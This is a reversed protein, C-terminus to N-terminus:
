SACEYGEKENQVKNHCHSLSTIADISQSISANGPVEDGCLSKINKYTHKKIKTCM